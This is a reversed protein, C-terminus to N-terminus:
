FRYEFHFIINKGLDSRVSAKSTLRTLNKYPFTSFTMSLAAWGNRQSLLYSLAMM